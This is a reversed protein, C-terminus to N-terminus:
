RILNHNYNPLALTDYFRRCAEIRVKLSEIKDPEYQFDFVKIRSSKPLEEILDNNRDIQDIAALFHQNQEDGGFKYLWSRKERVLLESPTPVLCYVLRYNKKGSLWMYGQGQWWYNKSLDAEMFTRLNYSTKVDEVYDERKLIVDPTGCVYDNKFFDSNKMRFEGGIVSQLLGLSDDECLLGKMIEETMFEERYKFERELWMQRIFTETTKSLERGKERAETMVEGLRSCRFLVQSM